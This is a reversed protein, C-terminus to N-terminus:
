AAEIDELNAQKYTTNIIEHLECKKSLFIAFLEQAREEKVSADVARWM